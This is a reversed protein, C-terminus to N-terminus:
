QLGIGKMICDLEAFLKESGNNNVIIYDAKERIANLSRAAVRKKAENVNLSDREMIRQVRVDDDADILLVSDCLVDCGAEYLLPADLVIFGGAKEILAEARKKIYKHTIKNLIKLKEPCSFVIVGLARRNLTGNEIAYPFEAKIEELAEGGAGTVQHSLKDADIIYAGNKAFYEAAMSKGAGTGGTLGLVYKM